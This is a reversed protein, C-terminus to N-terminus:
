REAAVAQLARAVLTGLAAGAAVDSPYHPGLYVRSLGIALAAAALPARPVLAGYAQVAAFSSTAHSSPFSLSSMTSVLMPLDDLAPRPRRVARKVASASGHAVAVTAAARVWRRRRPRDLAAGAAGIALWVAAHEGSSSLMTVARTFSGPRARRRLARYAALDAEALTM